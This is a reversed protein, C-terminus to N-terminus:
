WEESAIEEELAAAADTLGLAKLGQLRQQDSPGGGNVPKKLADMLSWFGETDPLRDLAAQSEARPIIRCPMAQLARGNWQHARMSAAIRAVKDPRPYNVTTWVREPPILREELPM